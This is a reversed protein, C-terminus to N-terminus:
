PGLSVLPCRRRVLKAVWVVVAEAVVAVVVVAVRVVGVQRGAAVAPLLTPVAAVLLM